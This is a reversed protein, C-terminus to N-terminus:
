NLWSVLVEVGERLKLRNEHKTTEQLFPFTFVGLDNHGSV